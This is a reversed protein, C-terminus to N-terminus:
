GATACLVTLIIPLLGVAIPAIYEYSREENLQARFHWQDNVSRGNADTSGHITHPSRTPTHQTRSSRTQRVTPRVPNYGTPIRGEGCSCTITDEGKECARLACGGCLGNPCPTPIKVDKDEESRQKEPEFRPFGKFGGADRPVDDLCGVCTPTIKRKKSEADDHEDDRPRKKEIQPTIESQPTM